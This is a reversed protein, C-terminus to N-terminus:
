YEGPEVHFSLDPIMVETTKTITLHKIELM